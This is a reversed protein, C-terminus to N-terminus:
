LFGRDPDNEDVKRLELYKKGGCYKCPLLFKEYAIRVQGELWQTGQGCEICLFLVESPTCYEYPGVGSEKDKYHCALHIMWEFTEYTMQAM